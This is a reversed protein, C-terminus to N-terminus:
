TKRKSAIGPVEIPDLKNDTFKKRALRGHNNELLHSLDKKSIGHSRFINVVLQDVWMLAHPFTTFSAM